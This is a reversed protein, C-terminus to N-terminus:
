PKELDVLSHTNGRFDKLALQHVRWTPTEQIVSMYVTYRGKKASLDYVIKYAANKGLQDPDADVFELNIIPGTHDRLDKSERIYQEAFTYAAERRPRYKGFDYWCYSIFLVTCAIFVPTKWKTMQM